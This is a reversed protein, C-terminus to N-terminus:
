NVPEMRREGCLWRSEGAESLLFSEWCLCGCLSAAGTVDIDRVTCFDTTGQKPHTGWQFIFCGHGVCPRGASLLVIMNSLQDRSAGTVARDEIQGRVKGFDTKLGLSM